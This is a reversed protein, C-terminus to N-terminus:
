IPLAPSLHYVYLGTLIPVRPQGRFAEKIFSVAHSFINVVDKQYNVDSGFGYVDLDRYSVGATRQPYREPDNRIFSLYAKAWKEANFSQSMPDLAPIQQHSEFPNVNGFGSKSVRSMRSFVEALDHIQEETDRALDISTPRDFPLFGGIPHIEDGNEPGQQAHKEAMTPTNENLTDESDSIGATM